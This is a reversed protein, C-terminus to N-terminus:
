KSRPLWLTAGTSTAGVGVINRGFVPTQIRNMLSGYASAAMAQKQEGVAQHFGPEPFLGYAFFQHIRREAHLGACGLPVDGASRAWLLAPRRHIPSCRSGYPPLDLSACTLLLPLSTQGYAHHALQRGLGGTGQRQVRAIANWPGMSVPPARMLARVVRRQRPALRSPRRTPRCSSGCWSSCPWTCSRASCCTRTRCATDSNWIRPRRTQKSCHVELVFMQCPQPHTLDVAARVSAQAQSLVRGRRASRFAWMRAVHAQVGARVMTVLPEFKACPSRSADVPAVKDADAFERAGAACDLLQPLVCSRRWTRASVSACVCPVVRSATVEPLLSPALSLHRCCRAPRQRGLTGRGTAFMPKVSQAPVNKLSSCGLQLVRQVARLMELNTPLATAM